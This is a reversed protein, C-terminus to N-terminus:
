LLAGHAHRERVAFALSDNGCVTEHILDLPGQERGISVLRVVEDDTNPPADPAADGNDRSREDERDVRRAPQNPDSAIPLVDGSKGLVKRKRDLPSPIPGGLRRRNRAAELTWEM